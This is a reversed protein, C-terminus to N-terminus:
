KKKPTIQLQLLSSSFKLKKCDEEHKREDNALSFSERRHKETHHSLSPLVNEDKGSDLNFTPLHINTAGYLSSLGRLEPSVVSTEKEPSVRGSKHSRHNHKEHLSCAGLPSIDDLKPAIRKRLEPPPMLSKDRSGPDLPLCDIMQGDNSCGSTHSEMRLRLDSDESDEDNNSGLENFHSNDEGCASTGEEPTCTAAHVLDSSSVSSRSEVYDSDAKRSSPSSNHINVNQVTQMVVCRAQEVMSGLLAGTDMTVEVSKLPYNQKDDPLSMQNNVFHGRIMAPARVTVSMIVKDLNPNNSKRMETSANKNNLKIQTGSTAKPCRTHSMIESENEIVTDTSSTQSKNVPRLPISVDMVSEFLLGISTKSDESSIDDNFENQRYNQDDTCHFNTVIADIRIREGLDLLCALKAECESQRTTTTRMHNILIMAYARIRADILCGFSSVLNDLMAAPLLSIDNLFYSNNDTSQPVYRIPRSLNQAAVDELKKHERNNFSPVKQPEEEAELLMSPFTSVYSEDGKEIPDHLFECLARNVAFEQDQKPKPQISTSPASPFGSRSGIAASVPFTPLSDLLNDLEGSEQDNNGNEIEGGLNNRKGNAFNAEDLEVSTQADSSDCLDDDISITGCLTAFRCLISRRRREGGLAAQQQHNCECVSSM